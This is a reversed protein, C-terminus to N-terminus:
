QEQHFTAAQAANYKNDSPLFRARRGAPGM